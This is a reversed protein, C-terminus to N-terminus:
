NEEILYLQSTVTQTRFHMYKYSLFIIHKFVHPGVLKNQNSAHKYPLFFIRCLDMTIRM